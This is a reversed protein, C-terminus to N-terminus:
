KRCAWSPAASRSATTAAWRSSWGSAWRAATSPRSSPSPRRGRHPEVLTRSSPEARSAPTNFAKIDAGGCFLKGAGTIVIAQVNPDAWATELHAAVEQRLAHGMGNVPPNNLVIVATRGHVSYNEIAM